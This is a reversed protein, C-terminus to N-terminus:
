GVFILVPQRALAEAVDRAVNTKFIAAAFTSVDAAFLNRRLERIKQGRWKAGIPPQFNKVIDSRLKYARTYMEKIKAANILLKSEFTIM